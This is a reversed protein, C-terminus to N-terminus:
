RMQAWLRDLTSLVVADKPDIERADELVDIAHRVRGQQQLLSALAKYPGLRLADVQIARRYAAEAGEFDKKEDLLQGLRYWGNGFDPDVRTLSRFVALAEDYNEAVILAQGYQFLLGPNEPETETLEAFIEVAEEGRGQVSAAVGEDFSRVFAARDKPDVLSADVLDQGPADGSSARGSAAYGLSRLKALEEESIKGESSLGEFREAGDAVLDRLDDRMSKLADPNQGSLDQMEGPDASLDFLEPRPADVLKRQEDTVLARLGSWGFELRPLHSEAFVGAREPMPGEGRLAQALSRGDVDPLKEVGVLELLTPAVDALSAAESIRQAEVGWAPGHVILPVRMVAQYLYLGHTPEGHEGLSEGHDSMVAVLLKDSRGMSEIERLMRAIGADAAAVEGQYRDGAYREALEGPPRYPAHPEWLHVWLMAPGTQAALWAMARRSTEQASRENFHMVVGSQGKPTPIEDDYVRFGRDLGYRAELVGASVFAATGWGASALREALTPIEGPLQFTGNNYVGHAPLSRGTMISSHSPLTLPSTAQANEFLTGESALRDLAPTGADERGYAGVRDARLTDVTVLLLTPADISKSAGGGASSADDKSPACGTLLGALLLTALATQRTRASPTRHQLM